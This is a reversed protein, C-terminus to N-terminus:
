KIPILDRREHLERRRQVRGDAVAPQDSRSAPLTLGLTRRRPGPIPDTKLLGLGFALAGRTGVVFGLLPPSPSRQLM